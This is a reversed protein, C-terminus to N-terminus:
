FNTVSPIVVRNNSFSREVKKSDRFRQLRKRANKTIQRSLIVQLLCIWIGQSPQVIAVFFRVAIYNSFTFYTMTYGFGLMVILALFGKAGRKAKIVGPRKDARLKSAILNMMYIM